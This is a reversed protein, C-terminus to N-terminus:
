DIMSDQTREVIEGTTADIKYDYDIRTAPDNFDVEFYSIGNDVDTQVVLQTVASEALGADALAKNKAEDQTIAGTQGTNTAATPNTTDTAPAQTIVVTTQTNSSTAQPTVMVDNDRELISGTEADIVYDYDGKDTYFEIDYTARWDDTDKEVRVFTAENMRIGANKLAISKAEEASVKYRSQQFVFLGGGVLVAGIGAGLGLRMLTKKSFNM